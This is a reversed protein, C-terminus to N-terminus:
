FTYKTCSINVQIPDSCDKTFTECTKSAVGSVSQKRLRSTTNVSNSTTYTPVEYGLM